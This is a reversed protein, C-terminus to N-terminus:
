KKFPVSLVLEGTVNRAEYYTGNEDTVFGGDLPDGVIYFDLRSNLCAEIKQECDKPALFRM